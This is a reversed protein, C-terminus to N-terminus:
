KRAKWMRESPARVASKRSQVAGKRVELTIRM